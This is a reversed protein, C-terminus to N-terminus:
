SAGLWYYFGAFPGQANSLYEAASWDGEVLKSLGEYLMHWGVACRLFTVIMKELNVKKM